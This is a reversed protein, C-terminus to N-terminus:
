GDLLDVKVPFSALKILISSLLVNVEPENRMFVNFRDKLQKFLGGHLSYIIPDATEKDDNVIDRQDYEKM